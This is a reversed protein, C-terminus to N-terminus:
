PGLSLSRRAKCVLLLVTATATLAAPLTKTPGEKRAEASTVSAFLPRGGLGRCFYKKCRAYQSQCYCVTVGAMRGFFYKKKERRKDIDRDRVLDNQM